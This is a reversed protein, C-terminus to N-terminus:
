VWIRFAVVPKGISAPSLLRELAARNEVSLTPQSALEQVLPEVFSDMYLATSGGAKNAFLEQIHQAVLSCAYFTACILAVSAAGTLRRAWGLDRWWRAFGALIPLATRPLSSAIM